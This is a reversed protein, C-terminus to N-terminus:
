PAESDPDEPFVFAQSRDLTLRVSAGHEPAEDLPRRAHLHLPPDGPIEM